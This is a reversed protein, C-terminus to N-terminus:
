DNLFKKYLELQKNIKLIKIKNKTYNFDISVKHIRAIVQM